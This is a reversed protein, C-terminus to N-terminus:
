SRDSRGICPTIIDPPRLGTCSPTRTLSGASVVHSSRAAIVGPSIRACPQQRRAEHRQRVDLLRGAPLHERVLLDLLDPALLAAVQPAEIDVHVQRLM